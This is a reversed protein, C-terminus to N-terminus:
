ASRLARRAALYQAIQYKCDWAANHAVFGTPKPVDDSRLGAQAMLTRLDRVKNYQWPAKMGMDRYLSEVNVVDFQPGRAWLEYDRKGNETMRNFERTLHRMLIELDEHDELVNREFKLRAADDQLMWWFLTQASITRPRILDLQPQIPFFSHVHSDFLSEEDGDLGYLAIQLVVSNPGTDLSEIDMMLILPSTGPDPFQEQTLDLIEMEQAPDVAPEVRGLKLGTSISQEDAMVRGKM